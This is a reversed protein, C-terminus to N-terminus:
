NRAIHEQASLLRVGADLQTTTDFYQNGFTSFDTSEDRLFLSDHAGLHTDENYGLDCLPEANNCSRQSFAISAFANLLVFNPKGDKRYCHKLMHTAASLM